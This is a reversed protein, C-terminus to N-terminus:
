SPYPANARPTAFAQTSQFLTYNQAFIKQLLTVLAGPVPCLTVPCKCLWRASPCLASVRVFARLPM